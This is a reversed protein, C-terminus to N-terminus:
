LDLILIGLGAAPLTEQNNNHEFSADVYCRPGQLIAPTDIQYTPTNGTNSPAPPTCYNLVQDGPQQPDGTEEQEALETNPPFTGTSGHSIGSTMPQQMTHMPAILQPLQATAYSTMHAQAAHCVQTATWRKRNFHFDNRAKWIYWLTFLISNFVTDNTNPTILYHLSNQIGDHEAPITETRISPTFSLWVPKPLQCHFFLHADTEVQGCATCHPPIASYRSARETTALENRILRWTFTKILPPLSKSKWVRNLTNASQTNISRSGQDPLHITNAQSLIKYVEKSTCQGKKAPIWRLVDEQDSPITQTSSIAQM